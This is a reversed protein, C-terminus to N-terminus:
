VIARPCCATSFTMFCHWTQLESYVGLNEPTPLSMKFSPRMIYKLSVLFEQDGQRQRRHVVIVDQTAVDLERVLVRKGQHRGWWIIDKRWSVRLEGTSLREGVGSYSAKGHPRQFSSLSGLTQRLMRRM